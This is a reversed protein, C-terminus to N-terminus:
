QDNCPEARSSRTGPFLKMSYASRFASGLLIYFLVNIVFFPREYIREIDAIRSPGWLRVIPTKGAFPWSAEGTSWAQDSGRKGLLQGFKSNKWGAHRAGSPGEGKWSVQGGHM